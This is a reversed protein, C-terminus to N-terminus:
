GLGRDEGPGRDGSLEQGPFDVARGPLFAEGPVGTDPTKLWRGVASLELQGCELKDPYALSELCMDLIDCYAECNIEIKM